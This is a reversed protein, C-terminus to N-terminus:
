KSSEPESKPSTIISRVDRWRRRLSRRITELAPGPIRRLPHPDFARVAQLIRLKASWPIHRSMLDPVWAVAHAKYVASLEAKPLSLRDLIWRAAQMAEAVSVGVRGMRTRVSSDHTRFYNLPQSVYAIRGEFGMAAWLKWDGCLVMTEDAGGVREYATKRFVVASANTVPTKRVFYKQCEERGDVRFDAAWRQRDFLNMGLDDFAHKQGHEDMRWSRCYAFVVDPEQDLVKVLTGLLRNDAYDDSEAIWIYEGRALRVGKNWQKFTSGSNKENFELAVRPDNAYGQLITRSDDTSYDDLLIVEFDRYTQALVTDIRQRLFQAHNYNPIIVSVKPM